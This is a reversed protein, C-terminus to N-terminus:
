VPRVHENHATFAHVGSSGFLGIVCSVRAEAFEYDQIFAGDYRGGPSDSTSTLQTITRRKVMPTICLFDM